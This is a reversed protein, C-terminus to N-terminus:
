GQLNYLANVREKIAEKSNNTLKRKQIKYIEDLKKFNESLDDWLIDSNWYIQKKWARLGLNNLAKQCEKKKLDEDIADNFYSLIRPELVESDWLEIIFLKEEDIVNFHIGDELSIKSRLHKLESILFDIHSVIDQYKEEVM